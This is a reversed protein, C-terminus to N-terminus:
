LGGCLYNVPVPLGAEYTLFQSYFATTTMGFANTFAVPPQTGAAVGDGYAKIAAGVSVKSSTLNDMGLLALSYAPGVVTQWQMQTELSSLPPLGPPMQHSFDSVQKVQCGKATGFDLLGESNIALFGMLEASGEVMWDPGPTPIGIWHQEFQILHFTEHITIKTKMVSGFNTWGLQNICFTVTGAGTFASNGPRACGPDTVSGNITSPNQVNRGYFTKYFTQAYQVADKVTQQDAASMTPDFNFTFPTLSSTVTATASKGGATATITASAIHTATVLGDGAVAILTPASSSWTIASDVTAGSADKAVATLQTTAGAQLTTTGSITV